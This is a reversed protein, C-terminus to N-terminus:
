RAMHSLQEDALLAALVPVANKTGIVALHRCADAKDKRSANSKLVALLKAEAEKTARPFTQAPLPAAVAAVLAIVLAIAIRSRLM